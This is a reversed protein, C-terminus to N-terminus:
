VLMILSFSFVSVIYLFIYSMFIQKTTELQPSKRSNLFGAEIVEEQKIFPRVFDIKLM